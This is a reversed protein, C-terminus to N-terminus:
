YNLQNDLYAGVAAGFTEFNQSVGDTGLGYKREFYFRGAVYRICRKIESVEADLLALGDQLEKSTKDIM